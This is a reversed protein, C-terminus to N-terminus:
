RLWNSTSSCRSRGSRSRSVPPGRVLHCPGLAAAAGPQHRALEDSRPDGHPPSVDASSTPIYRPQAIAVSHGRVMTTLTNSLGKIVDYLALLIPIQLLLPLCSGAPNVGEEKYVRMLERNLQERNESGRYERRLRAIRPQLRQMAMTSRTNRITLPLLLAMIVITMVIIALGYSATLGYIAALTTALVVFIPHFIQGVLHILSSEALAASAAHLLYM